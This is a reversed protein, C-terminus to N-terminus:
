PYNDNSKKYIEREIKEKEDPIMKILLRGINAINKTLEDENSKILISSAYKVGTYGKETVNDDIIQKELIIINKTLKKLLKENKM